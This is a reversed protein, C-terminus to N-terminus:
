DRSTADNVLFQCLVFNISIISLNLLISKVEGFNEDITIGWVDRVGNKGRDYPIVLFPKTKHFIHSLHTELQQTVYWSKIKINNLIEKTVPKKNSCFM